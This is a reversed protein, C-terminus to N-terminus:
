GESPAWHSGLARGGPARHLPQAMPSLPFLPGLHGSPPPPPTPSWATDTTGCRHCSLSPPLAGGDPGLAEAELRQRNRSKKKKKLLPKSGVNGSMEWLVAQSCFPGIVARGVGGKWTRGGIVAHLESTRFGMSLPLPEAPNLGSFRLIAPGRYELVMQGDTRSCSPEEVPPRYQEGAAEVPDSRRWRPPVATM